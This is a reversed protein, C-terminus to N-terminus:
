MNKPWMYNRCDSIIKGSGNDVLEVKWANIRADGIRGSTIGCYIEATFSKRRNPLAFEFKEPIHSNGIMTYINLSLDSPLNKLPRNFNIVFYLGARVNGDDRVICRRGGCERGGNFYEGIRVFDEQAHREVNVNVIKIAGAGPHSTSL